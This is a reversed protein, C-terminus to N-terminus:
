HPGQRGFAPRGEGGEALTKLGMLFFGWTFNCHGFFDTANRWDLHQFRLQSGGETPKVEFRLRTGIWEPGGTDDLCEMEFVSDGLELTMWRHSSGSPFEFTLGEGGLASDGEVRMSWWQSFGERSSVLEFVTDAPAEFDVVHRINPM